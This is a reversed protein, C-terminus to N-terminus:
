MPLGLALKTRPNVGWWTHRLGVPVPPTMSGAM